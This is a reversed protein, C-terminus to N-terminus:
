NISIFYVFQDIFDYCLLFDSRVNMTRPTQKIKSIKAFFIKNVRNVNDKMNPLIMQVESDPCLCSHFLHASMNWPLSGVNVAESCNFNNNIVQHYIGFGVYLMDGPKQIIIEYKIGNQKLFKTSLLLSKHHLPFACNEEWKSLINITTTDTKKTNRRLDNIKAAMIYNLLDSYLPHILLCM